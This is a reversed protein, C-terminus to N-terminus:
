YLPASVIGLGNIIMAKVVQGASVVEKPHRGLFQDIQEVLGIEDVLGAIIGLHNVTQVSIEASDM